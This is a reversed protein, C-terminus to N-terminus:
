NKKRFALYNIIQKRKSRFLILDTKSTNFFVYINARLWNVINKVEFNIKKNIDELSKSSYLLNTDDAFETTILM